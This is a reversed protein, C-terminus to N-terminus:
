SWGVQRAWGRSALLRVFLVFAVLGTLVGIIRGRAVDAASVWAREAETAADYAAVLDGSAFAGRATGLSAEPDSGVLGLWELPGVSLPRQGGAAVIEALAAGAADLEAASRDLSGAAFSDRLSEPLELGAAAAELRLQDRQAVLTRATAIAAQAFDFRWARMAEGITAPMPWDGTEAALADFAARADARAELLDADQPRVVYRVWLDVYSKPTQAELVDLLSRWDVPGPTTARGGYPRRGSDIALWVETLGDQGARLLIARSLALSAAYGYREIADGAEGAAAWSNLPLRAVDVEVTLEPSIIPQQLEAAALEAYLSAFAENAWRDALRSGNFWAHALEHLVVEPGAYYAIEIQPRDPSFSGATDAAEGVLGEEVVLPERLPWPRGIADALAPAGLLVLRNAQDLWAPDDAWGRFLIRATAPGVRVSGNSEIYAAARTARIAAEFSTPTDLPGSTWIELGDDDPVPGTLGGRLFTVDYGAPLALSVTSGPTEDSAFAWASFTVITHSVRLDRGVPTGPDLLNFTLRLALTKGAALRTGFRLLLLTHTPETAVVSVSPRLGSAALRFGTAGPQVALYAQEFFFRKSATDKLHNTARVGVSVAVRGEDPLVDYRADTVLTLSPTAALAPPPTLAPVFALLAGFAM